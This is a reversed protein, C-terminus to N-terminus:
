AREAGFPLTAVARAAFSPAFARGAPRLVDRPVDVAILRETTLRGREVVAPAGFAFRRVAFYGADAACLSNRRKSDL